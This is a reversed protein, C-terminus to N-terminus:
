EKTPSEVTEELIGEKILDEPKPRHQIKQDLSDARMQKDLARQNAQIAPAANSDPLINGVCCDAFSVEQLRPLVGREVLEDKEPRKGLNRRLSDTQQQRELEYQKAQLSRRM